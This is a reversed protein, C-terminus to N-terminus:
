SRIAPARGPEAEAGPTSLRWMHYALPWFALIVAASQLYFQAAALPVLRSVALVAFAGVVVATLPRSLIRSATIGRIFALVGIAFVLGGIASVPVFWEQLAAQAAAIDAVGGTEAAALAAFEMGPLMTFLVSGMVIFPVGVVSLRHDGADRLYSRVALFALIVLGSAVGAALHVLGWRTPDAAVATAIAAENPLQGHLYPHTVLAVLLAAPALTVITVEHGSRRTDAM